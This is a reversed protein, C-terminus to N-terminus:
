KPHNWLMLIYHLKSIDAIYNSGLECLAYQEFFRIMSELYMAKRLETQRESYTRKNQIAQGLDELADYQKELSILETESLEKPIRFDDKILNKRFKERAPEIARLFEEKRQKTLYDKPQLQEIIDPIKDLTTQWKCNKIKRVDHASKREFSREIEPKACTELIGFPTELTRYWVCNFCPCIDKQKERIQLLYKEYSTEFIKQQYASLKLFRWIPLGALTLTECLSYIDNLSSIAYLDDNEFAPSNIHLAIKIIDLEIGDGIETQAYIDLFRILGELFLAKRKAKENDSLEEGDHLMVAATDYLNADLLSM